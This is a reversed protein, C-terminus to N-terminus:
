LYITIFSEVEKRCMHCPKGIMEKVCVGCVGHGCPIFVQNIGNDHCIGCEEDKKTREIPTIIKIEKQLKEEEEEEEEDSLYIKKTLSFRGGHIFYYSFISYLIIFIIKSNINPFIKYSLDEMMDFVVYVFDNVFCIFNFGNM